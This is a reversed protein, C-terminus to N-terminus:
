LGVPDGPLLPSRETAELSATAPPNLRSRFFLRGCTMSSTGPTFRGHFGSTKM